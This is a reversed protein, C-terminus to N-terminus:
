IYIYWIYHHTCSYMCRSPKLARLSSTAFIEMALSGTCGLTTTFTAATTTPTLLGSVIKLESKNELVRWIQKFRQTKMSAGLPELSAITFIVKTAKWSIIAEIRVLVLTWFLILHCLNGDTSRIARKCWPIGCFECTFFYLSGIAHLPHEIWLLSQMDNILNCPDIKHEVYYIKM